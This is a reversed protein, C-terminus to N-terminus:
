VLHIRRTGLLVRKDQGVYGESGSYIDTDSESDVEWDEDDVEADVWCWDDTDGVVIAVGDVISGQPCLEAGFNV